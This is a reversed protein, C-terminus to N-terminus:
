GPDARRRRFGAVHALIQARALLRRGQGLQETVAVARAATRTPNSDSSRPVRDDYIDPMSNVPTSPGAFSGISSRIREWISDGASRCLTEGVLLQLLERLFHAVFQHADQANARGVEGAIEADDFQAQGQVQGEIEAPVAEDPVGAM